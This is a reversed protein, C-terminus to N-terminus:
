TKPQTSSTTLPCVHGTKPTVDKLVYREFNGKLTDIVQCATTSSLKDVEMFGFFYEITLLDNTGSLDFLDVGIKRWPGDGDKHCMLPENRQKPKMQQCVECGDAMQKVESSMRPWFITERARAMMSDYGMHAAHLRRKMEPRLSVPIVVREGKLIVGDEHSLTDRVDFYPTAQHPVDERRDPWWNRIVELHILM